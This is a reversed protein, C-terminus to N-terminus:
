YLEARGKDRARSFRAIWGDDTWLEGSLGDSLEVVDQVVDDGGQIGLKIRRSSEVAWLFNHLATDVAIVVLHRIPEHSLEPYAAELDSHLGRKWAPLATGNLIEDLEDITRDRVERILTEGLEDLVPVTASMPM